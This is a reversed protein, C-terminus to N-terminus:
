PEACCRFGLASQVMDRSFNGWGQTIVCPMAPQATYFAGGSSRCVDNAGTSSQCGGTWEWANGSMDFVGGYGGECATMSKVPVLDGKGAEKGNCAKALYTSGPYPYSQTGGKSCANYWESSKANSFQNWVMSCLRKGAWKCFMFADCWDLCVVPLNGKAGPPWEGKNCQGSTKQVPKYSTNWSCFGPQGAPKLSAFVKYQDRTVETSDICYHGGGPRPVQVMVPGAKGVLACGTTPGDPKPPQQDPAPPQQDPAPPKQDPQPLHKDLPPHKKDPLPHEKDPQPAKRDPRPLDPPPRSDLKKVPTDPPPHGGDVQKEGPVPLCVGGPGDKLPYCRQGTYCPTVGDCRAACMTKLSSDRVCLAKGEAFGSCEESGKCPSSCFPDGDYAICQETETGSCDDDSRCNDYHLNFKCAAFVLTMPLLLMIYHRHHTMTVPGRM